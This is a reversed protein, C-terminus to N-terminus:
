FYLAYTIIYQERETSTLIESQSDAVNVKEVKRIIAHFRSGSGKKM